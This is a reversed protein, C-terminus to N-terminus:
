PKCKLQMESNTFNLRLKTQNIRPMSVLYAMLWLLIEDYLIKKLSEHWCYCRHLVFNIEFISSKWQLQNNFLASTPAQHLSNYSFSSGPAFIWIAFILKSLTDHRNSLPYFLAFACHLEPMFYM